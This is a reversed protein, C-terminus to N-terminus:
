DYREEAPLSITFTTGRGPSSEVSIRGNHQQIIGHSVTLGLGVGSVETKTTFFADFVRDLHESPIGPGTDAVKINVSGRDTRTKITIRGGHPQADKANLVLNILVQKLKDRSGAICPLEPETDINMVINERALNESFMSAVEGILDAVNVPEREVEVVSGRFLELMQRTLKALRAVEERAVGVLGRVPDDERMKRLSTELLSQINHIPNNIEHSLQATM